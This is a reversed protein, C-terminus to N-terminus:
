CCSGRPFLCGNTRVQPCWSCGATARLHIGCLAGAVGRQFIPPWPAAKNPVREMIADVRWHFNSRKNHTHAANQAPNKRLRWLEDHVAPALLGRRQRFPEQEFPERPVNAIQNPRDQGVLKDRLYGRRDNEHAHIKAQDALVAVERSFVRAGFLAVATTSPM